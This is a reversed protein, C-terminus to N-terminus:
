AAVWKPAESWRLSVPWGGDFIVSVGFDLVDKITFKRGRRDAWRSGPLFKTAGWARGDSAVIAGTDTTTFTTTTTEM